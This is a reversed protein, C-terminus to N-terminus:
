ESECGVALVWRRCKVSLGGRKFTRRFHIWFSPDSDTRSDVCGLGLFIVTISSMERVAANPPSGVGGLRNCETYAHM